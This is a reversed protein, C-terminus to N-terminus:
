TRVHRLTGEFEERSIEGSEFRKKLLEEEATAANLEIGGSGTGQPHAARRRGAVWRVVLVLGLVILLGLVWLGDALWSELGEM